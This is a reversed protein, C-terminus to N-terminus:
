RRVRGPQAAGKARFGTVEIIRPSAGEARFAAVDIVRPASGRATFASVDIIRPAAGVATFGVVNLIRDESRVPQRPAREVPRDIARLTDGFRFSTPWRGYSASTVQNRTSGVYADGGESIQLTIPGGEFGILGAHVAATCISSDTSYVDTGWTRAPRGGPPCILPVPRSLPGAIGEATTSWDIQGPGDVFRFSGAWADWPQSRVGNRESGDYSSGGKSVEFTVVGGRAFSIIGAHVAATCTSSDDTYPDSGWLRGAKGDPPCVITIRRGVEGRFSTATTGWTVGLSHQQAQAPHSLITILLSGCLISRLQIM